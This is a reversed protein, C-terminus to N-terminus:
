GHKAYTSLVNGSSTRVSDVLELRTVPDGPEFLHKGAGAVVPHIMLTLRDLLGAFLLQRVVSISGQVAIRGGEQRKLDDVFTELEGVIITSNQWALAGTLSRSAVHKRVPNIFSGFPDDAAATPWYGSWEEYSVRGLLVDDIPAIAETMMAGMEPDFNDFQWLNPSEVVGDVSQFLSAHVDRM